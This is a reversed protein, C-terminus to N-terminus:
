KALRYRRLVFLLGLGGLGLVASVPEPTSEIVTNTATLADFGAGGTGGILDFLISIRATNHVVPNLDLHSDWSVPPNTDDVSLSQTSTCSFGGTSLESFIPVPDTCISQTITINGFPPDMGLDAAGAIPGPDILYSYNIGYIVEQGPAATFNTFGGFTFGGGLGIQIPTVTIDSASPGGSAAPSFGFGGFVLIGGEGGGVECGSTHNIYDQLTAIGCTSVDTNALAQSATLVTIAATLMGYIKM